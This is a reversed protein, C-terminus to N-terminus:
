KIIEYYRSMIIICLILSSVRLSMWDMRSVCYVNSVQRDAEVLDRFRMCGLKGAQETLWHAWWSVDDYLLYYNIFNIYIICVGFTSHAQKM